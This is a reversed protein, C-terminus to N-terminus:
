ERQGSSITSSSTTGGTPGQRSSQASAGSTAGGATRRLVLFLGGALALTLMVGAVGAIGGSLRANDVGSTGYDALPSDAVASDKATESFGKDQAVKELGDPSSSAYYSGIGALALALVLGVLLFPLTRRKM